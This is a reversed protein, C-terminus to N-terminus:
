LDNAIVLGDDSVCMKQLELLHISDTIFRVSGDALVVQVGGPHYSTLPTNFKYAANGEVGVSSPNPSHFVSTLGSGFIHIGMGSGRWAAITGVRTVGGWGTHYNALRKNNDVRNSNGSQESVIITNSTGDTADRFSKCEGIALLGNDTAFYGRETEYHRTTRAAPDPYAGMIGVYHHGQTVAGIAQHAASHVYIPDVASSPCAYTPM